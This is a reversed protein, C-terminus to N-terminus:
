ANNRRQRLRVVGYGAVGALVVGGVLGVILAWPLGVTPASVEVAITDSRIFGEMAAFAEFEGPQDPSIEVVGGAGTIHEGDLHVTAGQLGLWTEVGDDYYEVTVTVTEGPSVARKDVDLRLPPADWEGWFFLVETHPAAPPETVGLVFDACGVAPSQYDVRYMWGTWGEPGEGNISELYLGYATEQVVYTFGGAKSAQDVAGLATPSSLRHQKGRDDTVLSDRVTVQGKWLAAEKGEIRLDVRVERIEQAAAVPYPKGLLAPVAYATMLAMNSPNEAQWNFSGDENQFTLLDDVPSKGAENTWDEGDPDQGAAAIAAIGWANTGSNTSGWSDFGGTDTQQSKLYGLASQIEGADAPMGACILAMIAAATDDVDSTQGAGWSWGGDENQNELIFSVTNLVPESQRDKGSGILAMLGWFDDNVLSGDGIQTRDYEAEIESLFDVGGFDAPNKGAAAAALAMRARDSVSAAHQASSELYEILSPGEDRRWQDPDEGAAVVAMAAWASTAFDGICGDEEQASKLYEVAKNISSNATDLPYEARAQSGLVTIATFTVAFVVLLTILSEKWKSSAM